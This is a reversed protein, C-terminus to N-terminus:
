LAVSGPQAELKDVIYTKVVANGTKPARVVEWTQYADFDLWESKAAPAKWRRARWNVVVAVRASGDPQMTAKVQKLTHEEDFFIRVVGALWESFAGQGKLTAEPFRMELRTDDLLPLFETVPAHVDLLKYWKEALARIEKENLAQTM